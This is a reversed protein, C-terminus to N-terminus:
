ISQRILYFATVLILVVIPGVMAAFPENAKYQLILEVIKLFALVLCVWPVLVDNFGGTSFLSFLIVGAAGVELGGFASMFPKSVGLKNMWDLAMKGGVQKGIGAGMEFAFLGISIVWFLINM